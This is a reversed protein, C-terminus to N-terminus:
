ETGTSPAYNGWEVPPVYPASGILVAGGTPSMLLRRTNYSFEIWGNGVDVIDKADHPLVGADDEALCGGLGLLVALILIRKM